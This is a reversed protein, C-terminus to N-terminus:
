VLLLFHSGLLDGDVLAVIFKCLLLLIVIHLCCSDHCLSFFLPWMLWLPFQSKISGWTRVCGLQLFCLLFVRAQSCVYVCLEVVFVVYRQSNTRKPMPKKRVNENCQVEEGKLWMTKMLKILFRRWNNMM